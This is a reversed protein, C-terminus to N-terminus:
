VRDYKGTDSSRNVLYCTACAGYPRASHVRRRMERYMGNNWQEAFTSGAVTGNSHIGSLCCPVVDGNPGVYLRQWLFWCRIPDPPPAAPEEAGREIVFPPPLNVSIDLETAVERARELVDNTHQKSALSQDLMEHRFGEELLVLHNVTVHSGGHDKALRIFDPLEDVTSRMLITNFHIPAREAEPLRNLHTNYLKLNALVQKLDSGVRLRNHTEPTAGDISVTLLGMRRALREALLDGKILSANTVLELRVGFREMDSIKELIRPTMMPEGYASLQVTEAAPYLESVVKEYVEDTMTWNVGKGYAQPCFGCKLNCVTSNTTNIWTPLSDCIERDEAEAEEANRRNEAKLATLEDAPIVEGQRVRHTIGGLRALFELSM